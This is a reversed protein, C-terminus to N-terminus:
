TRTLLDRFNFLICVCVPENSDKSDPKEEQQEKHRDDQTPAPTNYGLSDLHLTLLRMLIAQSEDMEQNPSVLVALFNSHYRQHFFSDVQSNSHLCQIYLQIRDPAVSNPPPKYPINIVSSLSTNTQDTSESNQIQVFPDKGELRQLLSRKGTKPGGLIAGKLRLIPRVPPPPRRQQSPQQKSSQQQLRDKTLSQPLGQPTASDHDWIRSPIDPRSTGSVHHFAGQESVPPYQHVDTAAAEGEPLSETTGMTPDKSPFKYKHV